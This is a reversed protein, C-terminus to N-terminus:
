QRPSVAPRAKAEMKNGSRRLTLEYAKVAAIYRRDSTPLSCGLITIALRFESLAKDSRGFNVYADALLLHGWGTFPHNAGHALSWYNLAAISDAIAADASGARQEVWSSLSALTARDDNDLCKDSVSMSRALSLYHNGDDFRKQQFLVVALSLAARRAEILIGGAQFADFAQKKYQYAHAWQRLSLYADGIEGNIRGEVTLSNDPQGSAKLLLGISDDTKGEAQALLAQRELPGAEGATNQCDNSPQSLAMASCLILSSTTLLKM